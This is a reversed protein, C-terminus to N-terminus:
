QYLWEKVVELMNKEERLHDARAKVAESKAKSVENAVNHLMNIEAALLKILLPEKREVILPGYKWIYKKLNGKGSYDFGNGNSRTFKTAAFNRIRKELNDIRDEIEEPPLGEKKKLYIVQYVLNDDEVLREDKIKWGKLLLEKRVKGEAGQPQLILDKVEDLVNNDDNEIIDLVTNGGMGAITICDVEGRIIPKLGNGFRIKITDQFGYTKVNDRASEYPGKNTEVGIAREIRGQQLLVIPLYAHDTGIDGLKARDPVFVKVTELRPGLVATQIERM